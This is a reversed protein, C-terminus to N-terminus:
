HAAVTTQQQELYAKVRVLANERIDIAFLPYDLGHYNEGGM